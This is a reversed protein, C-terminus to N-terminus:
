ESRYEDLTTRRWLGRQHGADTWFNYYYDGIKQVLPLKADSDLVGRIAQETRAFADTSALSALTEANRARVWDLAADGDIDELWRHPDNEDM